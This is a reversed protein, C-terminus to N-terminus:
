KKKSEKKIKKDSREDFYGHLVERIVKSKSTKYKKALKTVESDLKKDLTVSMTKLERQEELNIKM